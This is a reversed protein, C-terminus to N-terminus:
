VEIPAAVPEDAADRPEPVEVPPAFHVWRAERHDWYHDQMGSM